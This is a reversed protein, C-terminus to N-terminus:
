RTSCAESEFASNTRQVERVQQRLAISGTNVITYNASDCKLLAVEALGEVIYNDVESACVAFKSAKTKLGFARKDNALGLIVSVEPFYDAVAPRGKVFGIETVTNVSEARRYSYNRFVFCPRKGRQALKSSLTHCHAMEIRPERRASIRARLDFAYPVVDGGYDILDFAPWACVLLNVLEKRVENQDLEVEQM